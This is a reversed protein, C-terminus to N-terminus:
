IRCWGPAVVVFPRTIKDTCRGRETRDTFAVDSGAQAPHTVALPPCPAIAASTDRLCLGCQPRRRRRLVHIKRLSPTKVGAAVGNLLELPLSSSVTRGPGDGRGPRSPPPICPKRRRRHRQTSHSIGPSLGGDRCSSATRDGGILGPEVRRAGAAMHGAGRFRRADRRRGGPGNSPRQGLRPQHHLLDAAFAGLRLVIRLINTAARRAFPCAPRHDGPARGRPSIIPPKRPLVSARQVM